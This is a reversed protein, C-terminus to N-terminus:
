RQQLLVVRERAESSMAALDEDCISEAMRIEWQQHYVSWYKVSGDKRITVKSADM